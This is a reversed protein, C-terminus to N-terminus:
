FKPLLPNENLVNNFDTIKWDFNLKNEVPLIKFIDLWRINAEFRVVNKVMETDKSGFLVASFNQNEVYLKMPSEILVTAAILYPKYESDLNDLFNRTDNKPIYVTEPAGFLSSKTITYESAPLNKSREVNLGHHLEVKLLKIRPQEVTLNAMEIDLGHFHIRRVSEKM